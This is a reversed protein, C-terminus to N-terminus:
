LKAPAQESTPCPGSWRKGLWFAIIEFRDSGFFSRTQGDDRQVVIWPFGFAGEAVLAAAEAKIRDKSETGMSREVLAQLEQDSFLSSPLLKRWNEPKASASAPQLKNAGWIANFFIDTTRRLRDPSSEEVQRLFRAVPMTNIPFSDPFEFPLKLFESALPLDVSNMWKAKNAVTLPPKNGSAVMVGGLFRPKLVLEVAWIPEYRKLVEYANRAWPSVCDYYFVIRPM